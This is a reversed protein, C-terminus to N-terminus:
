QPILQLRIGLVLLDMTTPTKTPLTAIKVFNSDTFLNGAATIAYHRLVIKLQVVPITGSTAFV